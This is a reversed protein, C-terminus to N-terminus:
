AAFKRLSRAMQNATKTPKVFAIAAHGPCYPVDDGAQAGCFTWPHANTLPWRCVKDSLHMLDCPKSDPLGTTKLEVVEVCHLNARAKAAREHEQRRLNAQSVTLGTAVRPAKLAAAKIKRAPNPGSEKLFAYGERWAKGIVAKHAVQLKVACEAPSKGSEILAKLKATNEDTWRRGTM